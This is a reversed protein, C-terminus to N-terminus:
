LALPPLTPSVVSTLHISRSRSFSPTPPKLQPLPGSREAARGFGRGRRFIGIRGINLGLGQLKRGLDCSRLTVAQAQATKVRDLIQKPQRIFPAKADKKVKEIINVYETHRSKGPLVPGADQQIRRVSKFSLNKRKGMFISVRQHMARKVLTGLWHSSELAVVLELQHCIGKRGVEENGLGPESLSKLAVYPSFSCGQFVDDKQLVM